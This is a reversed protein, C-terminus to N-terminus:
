FIGRETKSLVAEVKKRLIDPSFPKTIYNKLGKAAAKEFEPLSLNATVLIFPIQKLKDKSQMYELLQLGSKGPMYWDSIVLDIPNKELFAIASDGDDAEFMKVFGDQRLIDMIIRRMFPYDDVVLIRVEEKSKPRIDNKGEEAPTQSLEYNSFIPSIRQPLVVKFTTGESESSSFMLEGGLTKVMLYASYLGLGTGGEKGFSAYKEFIHKKIQEPIVGANTISVTSKDGGELKVVVEGLEPSAELANKILNSFMSFVLFEEGPVLFSDQPSAPKGDVLLSPDIRKTSALIEFEQFVERIVKCLDVPVPHFRYNGKEMKYLDSSKNIMELMKHASKNIIELLEIQNATLNKDLVLMKPINIIVSLPGKLDHRAISEMEERL